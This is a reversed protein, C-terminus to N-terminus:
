RNREDYILLVMISYMLSFLDVGLFELVVNPFSMELASKFDKWAMFENKDLLVGFAFQNEKLSM